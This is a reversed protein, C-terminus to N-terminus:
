LRKELDRFRNGLAELKRNVESLKEDLMLRFREYIDIIGLRREEKEMLNIERKFNEIYKYLDECFLDFNETDYEIGLERSLNIEALNPWDVDKGKLPIVPISFKDALQLENACDVSNFVSKNTGIFIILQSKQVTDLMWEDINGALDEECFFVQSIEKQNELYNVLEGIRYPEFDIVAHSIFIKITAKKRLSERILDPVKKSLIEDEPIFPNNELILESLEKLAWLETPIENFQNNGLNLSRISTLKVFSDPLSKLKNNSLDLSELEILEGFSDPLSELNSSTIALSKLNNFVGFNKPLANIDYEFMKWEVVKNDLIKMRIPNAHKGNKQKELNGQELERVIEIQEKPLNYHAQLNIVRSASVDGNNDCINTLIELNVPNWELNYNNALKLTRLNNLDKFWEPLVRIDNNNLNLYYLNQFEKIWEPIVNIKCNMLNLTELNKFNRIFEPIEHNKYYILSLSKLNKLNSMTTEIDNLVNEPLNLRMLDLGLFIVDDEIAAYYYDIRDLNNDLFRSDFSKIEKDLLKSLQKIVKLDNTM